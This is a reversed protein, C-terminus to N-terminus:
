CFQAIAWLIMALSVGSAFILAATALRKGVFDAGETSM